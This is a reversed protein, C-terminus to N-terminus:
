IYFVPVLYNASQSRLRHCYLKFLILILDDTPMSIEMERERGRKRASSLSENALARAHPIYRLSTHARAPYQRKLRLLYISEGKQDDRRKLSCPKETRDDIFVNPSSLVMLPPFKKTACFDHLVIVSIGDKVIKHLKCIKYKKTNSYRIIPKYLTLTIIYLPITKLYIFNSM